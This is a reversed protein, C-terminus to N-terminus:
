PSAGCELLYTFPKGRMAVDPAEMRVGGLPAMRPEVGASRIFLVALENKVAFNVNEPLSGTLKAVALANIKEVVVGAVAGTSDLLPGGSNGPQIPASLQLKSTDNGLGALASVTGTSVNVETALLGKLPFGLAVIAEGARIPASRFSAFTPTAVPIQVLALDNRNDSAVVRGTSREIGPASVALQSCGEIVHFNTLLHGNASVAFGSGSSGNRKSTQNDAPKSSSAVRPAEKTAAAVAQYGKTKCVKSLLLYGISTQPYQSAKAYEDGVDLDRLKNYDSDLSFKFDTRMESTRCNGRQSWGIAAVERQSQKDTSPESLINVVFVKFESGSFSLTSSLYVWTGDDDKAFTVVDEVSGSSASARQQGVASECAAEAVTEGISGPRLYSWEGRHKGSWVQRGSAAYRGGEVPAWRKADCEIRYLTETRVYATAGVEQANSWQLRLWAYTYPGDRRISGTELFFEGDDSSTVRLWNAAVADSCPAGVVAAVILSALISTIRTAM